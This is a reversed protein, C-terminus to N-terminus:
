PFNMRRLLDQFRPDSRLPDFRPNVKLNYLGDARDEYAKELWMCAENTDHLEAYISAIGYPSVYRRKSLQILNSITGLAETRKGAAAYGCGLSVRARLNGPELAAAKQYESIAQAYQKEWEYAMGLYLQAPYFGPNLELARRCEAIAEGYRRAYCFVYGAIANIILSLPDLEQARKIEAIAENHRGMYTLYAAYWMHGSAYSPNLELARKYEKEAGPFDFDFSTKIGGLTAHPEALTEDMQMAKLAAARTLPNAAKPALSGWDVSTGYSAALGAYALAYGPDKEIAEQFYGISKKLGDETRLNWYYRGKLYADHAEPNVPRAPAFRAQEQPTLKIRVQEAIARAVESQLALVDGLDGEYTEAWLHRDTPAHLLNATIRVRNGSRAVTGELVADVNLERAIEPLPKKTGKYQMVSTRSIVRLASIKGLDTILAETMGDAFYEQEPDRSLNELPLVALSQIRPPPERVAGVVKLLRHRLGAVDLAFVFVLSLAVVGAALTGIVLNRAWRRQLPPTGIAPWRDCVVAVGAQPGAPAPPVEVVGEGGGLGPPSGTGVGRRESSPTLPQHAEVPAIFRYGRRPVTEIFRPREATDGLAERLRRIAHNLSDELDGFTSGPWLAKHLEERTVVDGARAILMVLIQLPQEQLHVKQNEAWLEGAHADLKYNAFRVSRPLDTGLMM